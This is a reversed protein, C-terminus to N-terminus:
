GKVSGILAGQEFHKQIFPYVMIIPLCGLLILAYKLSELVVRRGSASTTELVDGAQGVVVLNRIVLQLPYLDPNRLLLLAASFSNWIEVAYFLGITMLVPKSLPIVISTLLRIDSLGDIRGSEEIEKPIGQFFTRMVILNFTNIANPLVMAGITDLLGYSKVVLYFPIMGGNFMITFVILMMIPQGLLLNRRSLSYAGLMTVLMSISTGLVVYLLTNRYGIWLREDGVAATLADWQLGKPWLGVENRIVYEPSSLAVSAMHVFPFLSAFAVIALLVFNVVDFLRIRKLKVM